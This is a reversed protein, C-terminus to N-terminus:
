EEGSPGAVKTIAQGLEAYATPDIENFPAQVSAIKGDPGVILLTRDDLHYESDYAGYRQCIAGGPDSLFRYQYGKDRAWSALEEPPDVSIALLVVKRGNRFLKAYQDRYADM